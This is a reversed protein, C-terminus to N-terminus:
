HMKSTLDETMCIHELKLWLTATTKDKLVEHSINNSLYLHIHFIIKRDKRQKEELSWVIPMQDIGLLVDDLHLQAIIARM